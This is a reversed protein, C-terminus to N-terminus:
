SPTDGTVNVGGGPDVSGLLKPTSRSIPTSSVRGTSVDDFVEPVVNIVLRAFSVHVEPLLGYFPHDNDFTGFDIERWLALSTSM